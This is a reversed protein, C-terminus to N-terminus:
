GLTRLIEKDAEAFIMAQLLWTKVEAHCCHVNNSPTYGTPFLHVPLKGDFNCIIMLVGSDEGVDAAAM